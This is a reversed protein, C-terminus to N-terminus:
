KQCVLFNLHNIFDKYFCEYNISSAKGNAFHKKNFKGMNEIINTISHEESGKKNVKNQKDISSLAHKFDKHLSLEKKDELNIFLEYFFAFHCVQHAILLILFSHFLHGEIKKTDIFITYICGNRSKDYFSADSLVSLIALHNDLETSKVTIEFFDKAKSSINKGFDNGACRASKSNLFQCLLCDLIDFFDSSSIKKEKKM